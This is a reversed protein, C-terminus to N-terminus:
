RQSFRIVLFRSIKSSKWPLERLVQDIVWLSSSGLLQPFVTVIAAISSGVMLISAGFVFVPSDSILRLFTILPLSIALTIASLRLGPLHEKFFGGWGNDIISLSLHAMMAYHILVAINIGIAVGVIGKFHGIWSGLIVASAYVARRAASRYVAGVARSLSDSLGVASRLSISAFLVQLPLVAEVWNPGLLILVLEPALIILLASAPLLIANVIGIGAFYVKALKAPQNQIRSMAPFLVKFIVQALYHGPLQMIRFIREYLGLAEAGLFRGVVFYDGKLAGFNFLKSLTHGGGFTLLERFECASFNPRLSHPSLWYLAISRLFNQTLLAFVIAWAGYGTIAMIIGVPAYGFSYSGLHAWFLKKFELNRALLAQAALGLSSIPLALGIVRLINAVEPENFFIAVPGALVFICVYVLAGLLITTTFTVRIHLSSIVKRQVLAPGLGIESFMHAFSTAIGAIAILGFEEPLVFRALIALVLLQMVAEAVVAILQWAGGRLTSNTLSM